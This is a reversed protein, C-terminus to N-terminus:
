GIFRNGKKANCSRCLPQINGIYNSGGKTLPVIHDVTLKKDSTGCHQCKNGCESFKAKLEDSTFSGYANIKASRRRHTFIRANERLKEPNDKRWKRTRETALGPNATQWKQSAEKYKEPNKKYWKRSNERVKEPNKKRWKLASEKFKEHNERQWKRVDERVKEPNRKKWRRSAEKYKEPNAKRLRRDKERCKERNAKYWRRSAEKVSARTSEVACAPCYKQARGTREVENNCVVCRITM